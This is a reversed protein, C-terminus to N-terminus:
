IGISGCSGGIYISWRMSILHVVVVVRRCVPVGITAIRMTKWLHIAGNIIYHGLVLVRSTPLHSPPHPWYDLDQDEFIKLPPAPVPSSYQYWPTLSVPLGIIVLYPFRERLYLPFSSSPCISFQQSPHPVGSPKKHDLRVPSGILTRHETKQFELVQFRYLRGYRPM